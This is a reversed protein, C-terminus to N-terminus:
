DESKILTRDISLSNVVIDDATAAQAVMYFNSLSDMKQALKTLGEAAKTNHEHAESRINLSAHM